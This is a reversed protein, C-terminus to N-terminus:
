AAESLPQGDIPRVAVVEATIGFRALWAVPDAFVETQDFNTNM